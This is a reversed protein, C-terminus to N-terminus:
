SMSKWFRSFERDRRRPGTKVTSKARSNIKATIYIPAQDIERGGMPRVVAARGSRCRQYTGTRWGQLRTERNTHKATAHLFLWICPWAAWAMASFARCNCYTYTQPALHHDGAGPLTSVCPPIFPCRCHAHILELGIRFYIL